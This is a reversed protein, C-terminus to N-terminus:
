VFTEIFMTQGHLITITGGFSSLRADSVREPFAGPRFSAIDLDDRGLTSVDLLRPCESEPDLAYSSYSLAPDEVMAVTKVPATRYKLIGDTVSVYFTFVAAHSEAANNSLSGYILITYANHRLPNMRMHLLLQEAHDFDYKQEHTVLTKRCVAQDVDLELSAHFSTRYRRSFIFLTAHHPKVPSAMLLIMHRPVFSVDQAYSSPQTKIIVCLALRWNVVLIAEKAADNFAVGILDQHLVPYSCQRPGIVLVVNLIKQQQLVSSSFDLRWMELGTRRDDVRSLIVLNIVRGGIEMKETYYVLDGSWTWLVEGSLADICRFEHVSTLFAYNGGPVLRVQTHEAEALSISPLSISRAPVCRAQPSSGVAWSSPGRAVRRAEAILEPVSLQELALPPVVDTLNRAIIDANLTMWVQKSRALTHFLKNVSSLQLVAHADCFILILILIDENLRDTIPAIDMHAHTATTLSLRLPPPVAQSSTDCLDYKMIRDHPEGRPNDLFLPLSRGSWNEREPWPPRLDVRSWRPKIAPRHQLTINLMCPHLWFDLSFPAPASTSMSDSVSVAGEVAAMVVRLLETDTATTVHMYVEREKARGAKQALRGFRKKFYDRGQSADGPRGDFDPFYTKIDSTQIKREFLDDKNLFLIISTQKFWQSHCISDWITMADQMQNADRDEILCQDYGSLSVLFLISTVDQFCHIWKRRESKQGGVDVMLMEHDRLSFTTETIGITRARARVIDQENPLYNPDFLRDLHSFYYYLSPIRENPAASHYIPFASRPCPPRTEVSGVRECSRKVMTKVVGPMPKNTEQFGAHVLSGACGTSGLLSSRGMGWIKLVRSWLLIKQWSRLYSARRTQIPMETRSRQVIGGHAWGRVFGEEDVDTYVAPLELDMDPLADLLYKLGRTLNDFVLQRFHEKEQPSFPVKHILRMQKLITSKGSDGSGLLLVARFCPHALLGGDHYKVQAEMRAKAEKMQKEAARHLARERDTVEIGGPVPSSLCGGM